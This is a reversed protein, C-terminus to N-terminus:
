HRGGAPAHAVPSTAPAFRLVGWEQLRHFSPELHPSSSSIVPNAAGRTYDYRSFSFTWAVGALPAPADQVSTSPISALVYWRGAGAPAWTWSEFAPPSVRAEAVVDVRAPDTRWEPGPFRLHLRQNSPTVHFEIYARQDIPRVFIEFTDGLEWLRQGDRTARTHIDADNLEAFVYLADGRWAARVQAPAFAPEDTERWGQGLMVPPAADFAAGLAELDILPMAALHPCVIEPPTRAIV